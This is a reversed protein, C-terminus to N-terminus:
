LGTKFIYFVLYLVLFYVIHYLKLLSHTYHAVPRAFIVIIISHRGWRGGVEGVEELKGELLM